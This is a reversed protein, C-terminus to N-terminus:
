RSAELVAAFEELTMDGHVEIRPLAFPACRLSVTGDETGLGIRYGCEAALHQLRADNLGFPAAVACPAQGTWRELALRSDLLERALDLTPLGDAGRHTALHSGFRVGQAALASITAANMLAAPEGLARDWEAHGGVLASVVFVDARLDHRRLVPFAAEAFDEYGDDFTIMVPRGRLAQGQEFFSALEDAVVAHYGHRRLWRMQAEFAAPAVRYRALGAPGDEAIRHYALVPVRVAWDVAVESRLAVAGDWVVFRGVDPDLEARMSRTEVRPPPAAAPDECRLFCDVQYLETRVSRELKLTPVDAFTRAITLAGWPHGWDFGTRTRDDGLVYAHASVIRGGPRVADAMKRAVQRLETEDLYYLVESCFVADAGAPFAQAALDLQLFEINRHSSCREAARQLATSSIDAAVVRQARAALQETFRGEACALELVHEIPGPPLMALQYAYKEQEYASGYNWPDPKAFLREWYDRRTAAATEHTEDAAGALAVHARPALDHRVASERQLAALALVHGDPQGAPPAAALLVDRGAAFALDRWRARRLLPRRLWRRAARATQPARRSLLARAGTVAALASVAQWKLQRAALEFWQRPAIAGLAGAQVTGLRQAGFYIRAFVRDIGDPVAITPPNRLDIRCGLTLSLTRPETLDSVSLLQREFAYQARRAALTDGWMAALERFREDVQPGIEAWRAILQGPELRLGSMLGDLMTIAVGDAQEADAPLPALLRRLEAPNEAQGPDCAFCWLALYAIAEDLTPGSGPALGAAHAPDADPVRPDPRYARGIVVQSDRM